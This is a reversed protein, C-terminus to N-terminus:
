SRTLELLALEAAAVSLFQTSDPHPETSTAPPEGISTGDRAAEDQTGLDDSVSTDETQVAVWRYTAPEDTSNMQMAATDDIGEICEFCDLSSLVSLLSYIAPVADESGAVLEAAELEVLRAILAEIQDVLDVVEAADPDSMDRVGVLTDQYAPFVVPGFEPCRLEHVTRLPIDTSRDWTDKGEPVSFRFSMGHIAQGAIADRVPKVLDNDFLRAEVYLGRKDERLETIQGIPMPGISPHKGHDFMLVPTNEAITKRFAGPAIQEDFERPIEGRIRTVSNFVAAYGTLTFGDGDEASRVVKFPVSRTVTEM